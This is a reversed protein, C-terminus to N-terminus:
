DDSNRRAGSILKIVAEGEGGEGSLPQPAKGYARDFIEKIAAISGQRAALLIQPEVERAMDRFRERTEKTRKNQTGVKRGGSKPQGKAAM